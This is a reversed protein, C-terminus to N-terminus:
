KALKRWEFAIEMLKQMKAPSMPFDAEIKVGTCRTHDPDSEDWSIETTIKAMM